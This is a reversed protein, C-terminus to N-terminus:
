LKRKLLQEREEQELKLIFERKAALEAEFVRKKAPDKEAEIQLELIAIEQELLLRLTYANFGAQTQKSQEEALLIESHEEAAEAETHIWPDVKDPVDAFMSIASIISIAAVIGAMIINRNTHQQQM